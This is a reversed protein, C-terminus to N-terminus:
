QSKKGENKKDISWGKRVALALGGRSRGKKYERQTKLGRWEYTGLMAEIWENKEEWTETLGIIGNEKLM